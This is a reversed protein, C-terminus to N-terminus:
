AGPSPDVPVPIQTNVVQVAQTWVELAYADFAKDIESAVAPKNFFDTTAAILSSRAGGALLQVVENFKSTLADKKARIVGQNDNLAAQVSNCISTVEDPTFLRAGGPMTIASLAATAGPINLDYGLAYAPLPVGYHWPSGAAGWAPRNTLAAAQGLLMPDMVWSFVDAPQNSYGEVIAGGEGALRFVRAVIGKNEFPWYTPVVDIVGPTSTGPRPIGVWKETLNSQIAQVAQEQAASYGSAREENTLEDVVTVTVVPAVTPRPVGALRNQGTADIVRMPQGGASDTLYTRDTKDDNIQAKAINIINPDSLWGTTWDDNMSGDAKRLMRYITKAGASPLTTMLVDGHWPRFDGMRPMLNMSHQADDDPLARPAVSPRM